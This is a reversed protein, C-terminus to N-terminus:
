RIQHLRYVSLSVPSPSFLSEGIICAVGLYRVPEAYNEALGLWNALAGFCLLIMGYRYPRQTRRSEEISMVLVIRSALPPLPSILFPLLSKIAFILPLCEAILELVMTM